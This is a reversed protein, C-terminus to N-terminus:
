PAPLGRFGCLLMLMLTDRAARTSLGQDARLAEWAGWSTVADLADLLLPQGRLEAAFVSALQARLTRHAWRLGEQVPAHFPAQRVAARRVPAIAEYLRARHRAVATVREEISGAAIPEAFMARARDLHREVAVAFLSDLDDFHRFVTRLSVGAREAIARAEPKPHGEVLLALIADVVADRNRTSRLRRGDELAVSPDTV